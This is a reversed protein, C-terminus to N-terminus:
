LLHPLSAEHTKKSWNEEIALTNKQKGKKNELVTTHHQETHKNEPKSPQITIKDRKVPQRLQPKAAPNGRNISIPDNGTKRRIQRQHM